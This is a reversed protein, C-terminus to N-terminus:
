KKLEKFKRFADQAEAQEKDLADAVSGIQAARQRMIEAERVSRSQHRPPIESATRIGQGYRGRLVGDIYKYNRHSLFVAEKIAYLILSKDVKKLWESLEEAIITSPLGIEEQYVRMVEGFDEDLTGRAGAGTDAATNLNNYKFKNNQTDNTDGGGVFKDGGGDNKDNQVVNPLGGNNKDPLVDSINDNQVCHLIEDDYCAGPGGESSPHPLISSKPSPLSVGEETVLDTVVFIKRGHGNVREVRILCAEELHKIWRQLTRESVDFHAMLYDNTAYAYGEEYSLGSLLSYLIKEDGSIKKNNLVAMPVVAFRGNM